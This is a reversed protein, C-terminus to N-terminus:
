GCGGKGKRDIKHKFIREFRIEKLRGTAPDEIFDGMYYSRASDSVRFVRGWRREDEVGDVYIHVGLSQYRKLGKVGAEQEKENLSM